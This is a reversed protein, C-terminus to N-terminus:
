GLSSTCRRHSDEQDTLQVYENGSKMQSGLRVRIKVGLAWRLPLPRAAKPADRKVAINPM